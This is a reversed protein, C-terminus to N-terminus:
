LAIGYLISIRLTRSVFCSGRYSGRVTLVSCTLHVLYLRSLLLNDQMWGELFPLPSNVDGLAGAPEEHSGNIRGRWKTRKKM